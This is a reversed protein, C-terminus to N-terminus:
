TGLDGVSGLMRAARRDQIWKALVASGADNIKYNWVARMGPTYGRRDVLKLRHLKALTASHHSGNSGGCDLPKAWGGRYELKVHSRNAADLEGLTEIDRDTLRATV